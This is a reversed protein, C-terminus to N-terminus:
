PSCVMTKTFYFRKSAPASIGLLKSDQLGTTRQYASSKGGHCVNGNFPCAVNHAPTSSVSRTYFTKCRSDDLERTYCNQKYDWIRRQRDENIVSGDGLMFSASTIDIIWSGALDSSSSVVSGNAM